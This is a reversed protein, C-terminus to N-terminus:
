PNFDVQVAETTEHDSKEWRWSRVATEAAQALLPNGGKVQISKVTGNASVSVELKVSGHLSMQRALAPYQPILRNIVKRGGGTVDETQADASFSSGISLVLLFAALLSCTRM